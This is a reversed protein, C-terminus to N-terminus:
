LFLHNTNVPNFCWVIICSYLNWCRFAIISENWAIKHDMSEVCFHCELVNLDLKLIVCFEHKYCKRGNEKVHLTVKAELDLIRAWDMSEHPNIM